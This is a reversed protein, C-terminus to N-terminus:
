SAEFEQITKFELNVGTSKEIKEKRILMNLEDLLNVIVNKLKFYNIQKVEKTIPLEHELCFRKSLKKTGFLPRVDIVKTEIIDDLYEDYFRQTIWSDPIDTYADFIIRRSKDLSFNDAAINKKNALLSLLLVENYPLREKLELQIDWDEIRKKSM